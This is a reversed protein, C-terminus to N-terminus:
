GRRASLVTARTVWGLAEYLQRGDDSAILLGTTAGRTLAEHALAGMVVRGLGRRRHEPVTEINHAVADSGLAVMTGRAAAYGSPTLLQVEIVPGNEILATSYPARPISSPHERLDTTMFWEPQGVLELEAAKLIPEVVDPDNTPVTLRGRDAADAVEAALARVTDPDDHLAIVEVHRDPRGVPVHLAGRAEEAPELDMTMGWRLQWRRILDDVTDALCVAGVLDPPALTSRFLSL